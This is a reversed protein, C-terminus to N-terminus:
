PMQHRINSFFRKERAPVTQQASMAETVESDCCFCRNLSLYTENLDASLRRSIAFTRQSSPIQTTPSNSVPVTIYKLM